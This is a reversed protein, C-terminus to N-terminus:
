LPKVNKTHSKKLSNTLHTIINGDTDTTREESSKKTRLQWFIHIYLTHIKYFNIKNETVHLHVDNNELSLFNLDPYKNFWTM